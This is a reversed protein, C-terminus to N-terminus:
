VTEDRVELLEPNDHINGIVESYPLVGDEDLPCLDGGPTKVCWGNHAWLIVEIAVDEPNDEDYRSALINGEFIRKGSKDTLGTYRGVTAPDVEWFGLASLDGDSARYPRDIIMADLSTHHGYAGQVWEGNDLRKGQFLIERDM